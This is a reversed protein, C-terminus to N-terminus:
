RPIWRRGVEGRGKRKREGGGGCAAEEEEGVKGRRTEGREEVLGTSCNKKEVADIRPSLASLSDEGKGKGV